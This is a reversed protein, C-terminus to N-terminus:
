ILIFIMALFVIPACFMHSDMRDLIGGHGPLITGADKVQAKRKIISELLDGCISAISCVLGIVIFQWYVLGLQSFAEAYADMSNFILFIVVSGVTGWLLGGIAGSITKNPSIKPCLKPGKFLSGTLYAFTDCLIPIMFALILAFTGVKAVYQTSLGNFFYTIEELHNIGVFSLMLVSPYFYSFMTHISKYISFNEVKIKLNRTIIENQTNKPAFLGILAVLGVMVIILALEIVLIIFWKMSSLVGGIYIGYALFPYAIAFWKNNYYNMKSLLKNMEFAGAAALFLIFADFIYTTLLRSFLVLILVSLIAIGTITRQKM